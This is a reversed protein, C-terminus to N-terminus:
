IALYELVKEKLLIGSIEAEYGYGANIAGGTVTFELGAIKSQAYPCRCEGSAYVYSFRGSAPLSSGNRKDLWEIDEATLARPTVTLKGPKYTITYNDSSAAGTVSITYWGVSDGATYNYSYNLAGLM